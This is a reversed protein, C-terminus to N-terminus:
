IDFRGIIVEDEELDYSRILRVELSLLSRLVTEIDEIKSLPHIMPRLDHLENVLCHKSDPHIVVTNPYESCKCMFSRIKDRIQQIIGSM